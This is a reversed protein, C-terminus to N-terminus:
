NSRYQNLVIQLPTFCHLCIIIDSSSNYRYKQMIIVCYTLSLVYKKSIIINCKTTCAYIYILWGSPFVCWTDMNHEMISWLARNWKLKTRFVNEPNKAITRVKFFNSVIVKNTSFDNTSGSFFTSNVYNSLDRLTVHPFMIQIVILNFFHRHYLYQKGM